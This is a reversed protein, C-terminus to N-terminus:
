ISFDSGFPKMRKFVHTPSLFNNCQVPTPFARNICREGSSIRRIM